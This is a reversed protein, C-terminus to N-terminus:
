IVCLYVFRFRSIWFSSGLLPPGTPTGMDAQVVLCQIGFEKTLSASLDQSAKASSESTYNLVLNAGKAALNQAISLGIGTLIDTNRGIEFPLLLPFVRVERLM